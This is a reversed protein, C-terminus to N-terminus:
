AQQKLLALTEHMSPFVHHGFTKVEDSPKVLDIIQFAQMNAAIAAKIGNNSDEFALCQEPKVNLRKAALLYIEPDPKGKSVEDGATIASFFSSLGALELKKLALQKNTSTAVVMPVHQQQLWQLLEIVGNKVPIAQNEVINLYTQKWQKRFVPYDMTDGYSARLVEEVGSENRGIINLYATELYPLNFSKCTQKFVDMCVRETDLLLGDMDFIFASFKM